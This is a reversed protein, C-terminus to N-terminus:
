AALLGREKFVKKAIMIASVGAPWGSYMTVHTILEVLEDRTVGNDLAKGIHFPLQEIRYQATLATVTVLSRDRHSLGPRAWIDGFLLDDTMDALKPAIDGYMLQAASPSKENSMRNEM